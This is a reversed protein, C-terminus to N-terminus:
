SIHPKGARTPRTHDHIWLGHHRALRRAVVRAGVNTVFDIVRNHVLGHTTVRYVGAAPRTVAIYYGTPTTM